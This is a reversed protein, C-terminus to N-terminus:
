VIAKSGSKTSSCFLMKFEPHGEQRIGTISRYLKSSWVKRESARLSVVVDRRSNAAECSYGPSTRTCWRDAVYRLSPPTGNLAKGLSVVPLSTPKNEM